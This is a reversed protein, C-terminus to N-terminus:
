LTPLAKILSEQIPAPLDKNLMKELDKKGIKQGTERIADALYSLVVPSSQYGVARVLGARVEAQASYQILADICALRVNASEDTTLSFLLADIIKEEPNERKTSSSVLHIKDSVDESSILQTILENSEGSDPTGVSTQYKGGVWFAILATAVPLAWRWIGPMSFISFRHHSKPKPTVGNIFSYFQKTAETSSEISEADVLTQMSSNFLDIESLELEGCSIMKEVAIEEERTLSGEKFRRLLEKKERM